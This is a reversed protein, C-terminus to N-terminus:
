MKRGSDSGGGPGAGPGSSPPTKNSFSQLVVYIIVAVAVVALAIGIHSMISVERITFTLEVLRELARRDAATTEAEAEAQRPVALLVATEELAAV